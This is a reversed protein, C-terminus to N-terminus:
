QIEVKLEKEILCICELADKSYWAYHYGSTSDREEHVMHAMQLANGKDLGLTILRPIPFDRM